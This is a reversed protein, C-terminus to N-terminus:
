SPFPIPFSLIPFSMCHSRYTTHGLEAYGTKLGHAIIFRVARELSRMAHGLTKRANENLSRM